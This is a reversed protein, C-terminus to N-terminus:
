RTTIVGVYTCTTPTPTIPRAVIHARSTTRALGLGLALGVLHMTRAVVHSLHHARHQLPVGGGDDGELEIYFTQAAHM